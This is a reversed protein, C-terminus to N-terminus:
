EGSQGFVGGVVSSSINGVGGSAGPADQPFGTAIDGDAIGASPGGAVCGVSVVVADGLGWGGAGDANGVVM